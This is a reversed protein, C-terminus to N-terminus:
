FTERFLMEQCSIMRIYKNNEQTTHQNFKENEKMEIFNRIVSTNVEFM